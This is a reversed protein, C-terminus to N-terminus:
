EGYEKQWWKILSLEAEEAMDCPDDPIHEEEMPSDFPRNPTGPYPPRKTVQEEMMKKVKEVNNEDAELEAKYAIRKDEEELDAMYEDWQKDWNIEECHMNDEGTGGERKTSPDVYEIYPPDRTIDKSATVEIPRPIYYVIDKHSRQQLAHCRGRSLDTANPIVIQTQQWGGGGGEM